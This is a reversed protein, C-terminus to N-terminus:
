VKKKGTGKHADGKMANKRHGFKATKMAKKM